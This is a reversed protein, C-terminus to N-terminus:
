DPLSSWERYLWYLDNMYNEISSFAILIRQNKHNWAIRQGGYGLAWYSDKQWNNETWILYGYGDFAKGERKISNSIQTRTAQKVYNSFCGSGSESQKLWFAFRGWDEITMRVSGDAQGYSFHDQGIIAKHAIGAPILVEKEVWKAYSIGTARNLIVGLLLPDTSHYDFVEGSKRKNGFLSRYADSINPTKLIDVISIKGQLMDRWQEASMISSDLNIPSTGSSMKLLDQITARGLDTGKLEPVFSEASDSLSLKDSCIAKGIAMSTVTKGISFSLFISDSNAPSKYGVWILKNGDMLAIAKASSNNLITKAKEVVAVEKGTPEKIVLEQPQKATDTHYHWRQGSGMLWADPAATYNGVMPMQSYAPISLFLFLYYLRRMNLRWYGKEQLKCRCKM